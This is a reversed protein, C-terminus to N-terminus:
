GFGKQNVIDFPLALRHIAESPRFRYPVSICYSLWKMQLRFSRFFILVLIEIDISWLARM